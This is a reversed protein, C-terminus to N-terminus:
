MDATGPENPKSSACNVILIWDRGLELLHARDRPVGADRILDEVNRRSYFRVFGRAVLFRLKRIPVRWEFRKPISAFIKGRCLKRMGALHPVPNELYDFYGMALVAEFREETDYGLFDGTVFEFDAPLNANKTEANALEIMAPSVDVGVVRAAGLKALAIGYRGSGCGIDLVSWKGPVPALTCVLHFREVVVARLRDRLRQWVPKRSEYIADFREADRDFHKRVTELSNM